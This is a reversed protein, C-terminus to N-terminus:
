DRRKDSDWGASRSPFAPAESRRAPPEARPLLLPRPTTSWAREIGLFARVPNEAGWVEGLFAVGDFGLARAQPATQATIGGLAYVPCGGQARWHSRIAALELTTRQPQYGSKSVSPFLPSLLAYSCTDGVQTLECALRRASGGWADHDADM